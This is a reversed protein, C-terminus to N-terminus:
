SHGATAAVRKAAQTLRAKAFREASGSAIARERLALAREPHLQSWTKWDSPVMQRLCRSCYWHAAEERKCEPCIQELKGHCLLAYIDPPIEPYVRGRQQRPTLSPSADM